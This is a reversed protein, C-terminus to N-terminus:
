RDWRGARAWRVLNLVPEGDATLQPSEGDATLKPSPRIWSLSPCM